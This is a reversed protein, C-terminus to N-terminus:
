AESLDGPGVWEEQWVTRLANRLREGVGANEDHPYTLEIRFEYWKRFMAMARLDHGLTEALMRFAIIQKAMGTEIVRRAPIGLAVFSPNLEKFGQMELELMKLQWIALDLAELRGMGRLLQPLHHIGLAVHRAEDREYYSLLDCLVPELRRERTLQFLTLAIPEVMLQMGMLKKTLSGSSLIEDLTRAAVPPLVEPTYGILELYDHLVYFHRAEDHAQATAAMKAELPELTLALEASVKWAALEGWFIVAFLTRVAKAQEPTLRVGGHRDVLEALLEKGDWANDQGKHYIRELLRASRVDRATRERDFMDYPISDSAGRRRVFPLRFAERLGFRATGRM